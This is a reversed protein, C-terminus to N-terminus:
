RVYQQRIAATFIINEEFNKLHINYRPINLFQKLIQKM